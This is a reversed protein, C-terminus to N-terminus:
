RLDIYVKTRPTESYSKISTIEVIQADDKFVIGKLCDNLFKNLNDVDPRKLHNVKGDLMKIRNKQSTAKPIPLFYHALVSVGETIPLDHEYQQKIHYQYFEKENARPNYARRGYGAHARWPVPVGDIQIIIPLELM